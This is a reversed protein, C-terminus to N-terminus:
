IVLGGSIFNGNASPNLNRIIERATNFAIANYGASVPHILDSGVGGSYNQVFWRAARGSVAFTGPVALEVAPLSITGYQIMLDVGAATLDARLPPPVLLIKFNPFTGLLDTRLKQCLKTLLYTYTSVSFAYPSVSDNAGLMIPLFDLRPLTLIEAVANAYLPGIPFGRQVLTFVPVAGNNMSNSSTQLSLNVYDTARAGQFTVTLTGGPLSSGSVAVNGSGVNSLGELATQLASASLNYPQSAANQFTGGNVSVAIGFTGSTPAGSITITFITPGIGPSWGNTGDVSALTAGSKGRNVPNCPYGQRDIEQCVVLTNSNNETESDGLFVCTIGTGRRTATMLPVGSPYTVTSSGDTAKVRYYYVTEPTLGTDLYTLNSGSYVTTPSTFAADTSREVTYSPVGTGSTGIGTARSWSVRVTTDTTEGLAATGATLSGSATYTGRLPAWPEQYLTQFDADSPLGTLFHICKVSGTFTVWGTGGTDNSNISATTTTNNAGITTSGDTVVLGGAGTVDTQTDYRYLRVIREKTGPVDNMTLLLGYWVNPVLTAGTLTVTGFNRVLVLTTTGTNSSSLRLEVTPNDGYTLLTCLQTNGSTIPNVGMRHKFVIFISKQTATGWSPVTGQPFFLCRNGLDFRLAPSGGDPTHPFGTADWTPATGPGQAGVIGSGAYRALVVAPVKQNKFEKPQGVGETFGIIAQTVSGLGLSSDFVPNTPVNTTPNAM